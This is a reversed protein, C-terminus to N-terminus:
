AREEARAVRAPRLLRWVPVDLCRLEGLCHFGHRAYFGLNQEKVTELYIPVGAPATRVVQDVLRSGVGRGHLEPEVGLTRLYTFAGGPAQEAIIRAAKAGRRGVRLGIHLLGWLAFFVDAKEYVTTRPRTVLVVGAARGASDTMTWAPQATLCHSRIAVRFGWRMRKERDAARADCIAVVLPDDVFARALLAAADREDEWRLVSVTYGTLSAVTAATDDGRPPTTM